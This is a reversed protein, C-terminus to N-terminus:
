KIVPGSSHSVAELREILDPWNVQRTYGVVNIIPPFGGGKVIYYGQEAEEVGSMECVDRRLKCNLGLSKYSFEEFFRLFSRQLLGSAGGGIQSLNDVAKQSIKRRSKDGKPTSFSADFHVPQWNSLRLNSVKGDVKGTIKGFDFTQTLTELNLGTLDINAQLQPLLGFPQDLQLDRIITTGEFLNVKLEGAIKIQQDHYIVSPIEGSLQGHLLPWALTSSLLEMSIPEVEGKFDWELRSDQQRQLNFQTVKLAGDLIPLNLPELLELSSSKVQASLLAGGLPIAYVSADQWHVKAHMPKTMTTWAIVGSLDDVSFLENQQHIYSNELNLALAYHQEQLQLTLSMEGALELNDMVTGVVFPQLWNAYIGVLETKNIALNLSSFSHLDSVFDAQLHMVTDHQFDLENVQLLATDVTWKGQSKISIPTASFDIFIPEAYGQGKDVEVKTQWHWIDNKLVAELSISSFVEESVYVGQSDSINMHKTDLDLEIESLRDAQGVLDLDLKLEGELDWSSLLELQEPEIYPSLVKILPPLLVKPTDAFVKWKDDKMIFTVSFVASALKLNDVELKYQNTNNLTEFEFNLQQSGIKHHHFSFQGKACSIKESLLVVQRCNLKVQSIKGIPAALLMSDAAATFGFGTSTLQADLRFNTAQQQEFSWQGISLTLGDAAVSMASVILGLLLTIIRLSQSM